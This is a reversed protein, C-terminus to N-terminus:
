AAGQDPPSITYPKPSSLYEAIALLEAIKSNQDAWDLTKIGANKARQKIDIKYRYRHQTYVQNWAFDFDLSFKAAYARVAAVLRTRLSIGPLEVFEPLFEDVPAPASPSAYRCFYALASRVLESPKLENLFLYAGYGSLKCDPYPPKSASCITVPVFHIEVPIKQLKAQDMSRVLHQKIRDWIIRGPRVVSILERTSWEIKSESIQQISELEDTLDRM